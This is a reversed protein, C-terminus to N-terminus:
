KSVIGDHGHKRDLVKAWVGRWGLGVFHMFSQGVTEHPWSTEVLYLTIYCLVSQEWWLSRDLDLHRSPNRLQLSFQQQLWWLLCLCRKVLNAGGNTWSTTERSGCPFSPAGQQLVWPQAIFSYLIFVISFVICFSYVLSLLLMVNPWLCGRMRHNQWLSGIFIAVEWEWSWMVNFQCYCGHLEFM